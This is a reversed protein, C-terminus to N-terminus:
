DAGRRLAEVEQRLAAIEKQQEQIAKVLVATLHDYKVGTLGEDDYTALRPDVAEIEEAVFGLDRTGDSRWAFGVPRLKQITEVGPLDLDEIHDKLRRLSGSCMQLRGSSTACLPNGSAAIGLDSIRVVGNVDLKFSPLGTTGIGVQGSEDILFRVAAATEDAISFVGASNNSITWHRATNLLGFRTLGSDLARSYISQSLDGTGQVELKAIPNSTGIGVSAGNIGLVATGPGTGFLVRRGGSNSKVILDGAASDMVFQGASAAVGLTADSGTRGMQLTTYHDPDGSLMSIGEDPGVVVLKSTPAASDPTTTGIGVNGGSDIVFRDVGATEDYIRFNDENGVTASGSRVNWHRGGARTSSLGVVADADSISIHNQPDLTGLGLYGLRSVTLRVPGSGAAVGTDDFLRLGLDDVGLSWKGAQTETREITLQPTVSTRGVHIPVEPDLVGIGVNGNKIVLEKGGAALDASSSIAFRSTPSGGWRLLGAYWEPTGGTSFQVQAARIAASRDIVLGAGGSANSNRLQLEFNDGVGTDVLEVAGADITVTRGAGSGGADYGEDLSQRALVYPVSTLQQRPNLVTGGITVQLWADPGNFASPLLPNVAGLAVDLAGNAVSVSQTESWLSSGGSSVSFIEFLIAQTGNIPVGANDTLRGQYRVLSPAAAFSAGIAVLCGSIAIRIRIWSDNTM